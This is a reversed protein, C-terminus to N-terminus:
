NLDTPALNIILMYLCMGSYYILRLVEVWNEYAGDVQTPRMTCPPCNPKLPPPNHSHSRESLRSSSHSVHLCPLEQQDTVSSGGDAMRRRKAAASAILDDLVASILGKLVSSALKLKLGHVPLSQGCQFRLELDGDDSLAERLM